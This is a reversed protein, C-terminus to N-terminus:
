PPATLGFLDETYQSFSATIAILSCVANRTNRAPAYGSIQKPPIFTKPTYFQQIATRGDNKGRLFNVQASKKKKPPHPTYIGIYVGTAVGRTVHWLTDLRIRSIPYDFQPDPSSHHNLRLECSYVPGIILLIRFPYVNLQQILKMRQSCLRTQRLTLILTQSRYSTASGRM